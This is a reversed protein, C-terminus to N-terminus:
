FDNYVSYLWIHESVKYSAPLPGHLLSYQFVDWGSVTRVECKLFSDRFFYVWVHQQTSLSDWNLMSRSRSWCSIYSYYKKDRTQGSNKIAFLRITSFVNKVKWLYELVLKAYLTSLVYHVIHIKLAWSATCELSASVGQCQPQPATRSMSCVRAQNHTFFFLCDGVCEWGFVRRSHVLLWQPLIINLVPLACITICACFHM